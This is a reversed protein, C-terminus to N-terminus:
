KALSIIENVIFVVGFCALASGFLVFILREGVRITIRAGIYAGPIVGIILFLFLPWSIHHLFAHVITGPIAIATIGILSTGISKKIPIKLLYIFCPVMVVGGGVGLLGSYFGTVLGIASVLWPNHRPPAAEAEEGAEEGSSAVESDVPTAETGRAGRVITTIAVYLVIFGTIIMLYHLNLWKTLLAGFVAGIMGTACVYAAVYWDVLGHRGYTIGGAAATPIAAPLTTGLAIAPSAGLFMRLGPTTVSAGGIGFMGSLVAGAMGLLIAGIVNLPTIAM